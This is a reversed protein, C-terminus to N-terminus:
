KIEQAVDRPTEPIVRFSIGQAGDAFVKSDGLCDIGNYTAATGHSSTDRTFRFVVASGATPRKAVAYIRAFTASRGRTLTADGTGKRYSILGRSNYVINELHFSWPFDKRFPGDLINAERTIWNDKDTDLVEIVSPDFQILASIGDLSSFARNDLVLDLHFPEGVVVPGEPPKIYMRVGGVKSDAGTFVTPDSLMAEAERQNRPLIRLSMNLTGDAPDRRNGLLDVGAGVISTRLADRSSFEIETGPTTRLASWKVTLVPADNLPLPKKLKAEYLIMGALPDVEATPEGEIFSAVAADGISLPEVFESNYSLLVRIEDFPVVDRNDFTIETTFEEGITVSMDQRDPKGAPHIRLMRSDADVIVKFEGLAPAAPAAAARPAAAGRRTPAAQEPQGAAAKPQGKAGESEKAAAEQNRAPRQNGKGQNTSNQDNANQRNQGTSSGTSVTTGGTTQRQGSNSNSNSSQRNNGQGPALSVLAGALMAAALFQLVNGIHSVM